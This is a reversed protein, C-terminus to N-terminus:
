LEEVSGAVAARLLLEDLSAPVGGFRAGLVQRIAQRKGEKRGQELGEAKSMRESSTVYPMKRGEELVAIEQQVEKEITSPLALLELAM